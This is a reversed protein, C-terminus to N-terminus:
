PTVSAPASAAPADPAAPLTGERAFDLAAGWYQMTPTRHGAPHSYGHVVALAAPGAAAARIAQPMWLPFTKDADSHLLLLPLTTRRANAVSNWRDPLMPIAWKPVLGFYAAAERASSYGAALVLGDPPPTLAPLQQMLVGTGLSYGLAVRRRARPTRAVFAQWAAVADEQLHDATRAGESDGFGSYDFVLSGVGARAWLAQVDAWYSVSEATGHYVLVMPMTDAPQVLRAKLRRGGADIDFSDYPVGYTAPSEPGVPRSILGMREIAQVGCASVALASVALVGFIAVARRSWPRM